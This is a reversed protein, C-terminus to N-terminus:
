INQDQTLAKIVLVQNVFSRPANLFKEVNFLSSKNQISSSLFAVIEWLLASKGCLYKM